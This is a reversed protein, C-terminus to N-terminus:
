AVVALWVAWASVLAALALVVVLWRRRGRDGAGARQALADAEEDAGLHTRLTDAALKLADVKAQRPVPARSLAELHAVLARWRRARALARAKGDWAPLWGPEAALAADFGEVARMPADHREFWAGLATSARADGRVTPLLGEAVRRAGEAVVPAHGAERKARLEARDLFAQWDGGAAAARIAIDAFRKEGFCHAPADSLGALAEDPDALRHLRLDALRVVRDLARLPESVPPASALLAILEAWAARETYHRELFGRAAADGPARDLIDRYVDAAVEAQGTEALLGALLRLDPVPDVALGIRQRVLPIADAPRDDDRYLAVLLDIVEPHDPAQDLAYRWAAIREDVTGGHTDLDRALAMAADARAPDGDPLADLLARRTAILAEGEGEAGYLAVLAALAPRDFPAATRVAEWAAIARRRDALRDAFLAARRRDLAVRAEGPPMRVVQADLLAALEAWREARTLLRDLAAEADPDGPAMRRLERWREIAADVDGIAQEALEARRRLCARAEAEDLAAEAVQQRRAFLRELEVWRGTQGYLRTLADLGSQETPSLEALAEWAEIAADLRECPGEEVEAIGRLLAIRAALDDTLQLARRACFLFDGWREAERHAAGLARLADVAERDAALVQKWAALAAERDGLRAGRVEAVRRWLDAVPAEAGGAAQEFAAAGELWAGTSTVLRDLRDFTGADFRIALARGLAAIARSPDDLRRAALDAVEVWRGEAAEPAARAARDEALAVVEAWAGRARHIALLPELAGDVGRAHLAALGDRAAESRPDLAAAARWHEVAAPPDLGACLGALKARLDLLETRDRTEALADRYLARLAADAGLEAYLAAIRARTRARDMTPLAVAITEGDVARLVLSPQWQVVEVTPPDARDLEVLELGGIASRKILAVLRDATALVHAESLGGTLSLAATVAEPPLDEPLRARVDSPLDVPMPGM